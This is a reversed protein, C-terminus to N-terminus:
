LFQANRLINVALPFNRNCNEMVEKFCPPKFALINNFAMTRLAAMTRQFTKKRSYANDEKMDVDRIWNDTEVRWHNRIAKFLDPATKKPHELAQNSIYLVTEQLQKQTNMKITHREVEILTALGCKEWRQEFFVERIDWAKYHRAEIRGHEKNLDEQHALAKRIRTYQALDARLLAENDKVPALYTGGAQHIQGLTQEHCHLSDLTLHQKELESTELLERVAPIESEKEGSYYTQAVIKHSEHEVVEVVSEGRTQGLEHSGRLEKGDISYWHAGEQVIQHGFHELILDNLMEWRVKGLILPLQARSVVRKCESGLVACLDSYYTKMHQHLASLSGDQVSMLAMVVGTLVVELAHRKGRIDRLDLNSTRIADFFRKSKDPCLEM